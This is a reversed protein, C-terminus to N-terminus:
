KPDHEALVIAPHDEPHNIYGLDDLYTSEHASYVRWAGHEAITKGSVERLEARAEKITPGKGWYNPVTIMFVDGARAPKLTTPIRPTTLKLTGM